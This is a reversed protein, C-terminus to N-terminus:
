RRASVVITAARFSHSLYQISISDPFLIPKTSLRLRTKIPLFGALPDIPPPVSHPRNGNRTVPWSRLAFLCQQIQHVIM